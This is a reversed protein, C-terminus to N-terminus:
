LSDPRVTGLAGIHPHISGELTKEAGVSFRAWPIAELRNWPIPRGTLECIGYTGEEIRKLAADIEYLVEQEFSAPGLVIDRDFNDTAADAMHMSYGPTEECAESALQRVREALEERLRLLKERQKKWRGFLLTRLEFATRTRHSLRTDGRKGPTETSPKM